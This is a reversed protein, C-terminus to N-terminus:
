NERELTLGHDLTADEAAQQEIREAPSVGPLWMKVKYMCVVGSDEVRERKDFNLM